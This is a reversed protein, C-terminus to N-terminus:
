GLAYKEVFRITCRVILAMGTSCHFSANYKSADQKTIISINQLIFPHSADDDDDYKSQWQWRPGWRQRPVAFTQSDIDLQLVRASDNNMYM